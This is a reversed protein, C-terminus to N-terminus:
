KLAKKLSTRASSDRWYVKYISQASAFVIAGSALFDYVNLNKYNFAVGVLLCMMVALAYRVNSNKVKSNLVDILPPLITGVLLEFLETM